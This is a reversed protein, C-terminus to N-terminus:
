LHTLPATFSYLPPPSFGRASCQSIFWAAQEKREAFLSLFISKMKLESIIEMRREGGQKELRIRRGGGVQEEERGFKEEKRSWGTGGEKWGGGGEEEM